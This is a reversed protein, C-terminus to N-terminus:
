FARGGGTNTITPRRKYRDAVTKANKPFPSYGAKVGENSLFGRVCLCSNKRFFFSSEQPLGPHLNRSGLKCRKWLAWPHSMCVCPRRSSPWSARLGIAYYQRRDRPFFCGGQIIKYSAIFNQCLDDWENMWAIQGEVAFKNKLAIRWRWLQTWDLEIEQESAIRGQRKNLEVTRKTVCLIIVLLV